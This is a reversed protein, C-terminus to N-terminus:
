VRHKISEVINGKIDYITVNGANASLIVAFPKETDINITQVSNGDDIEIKNVKQENMSVFARENYGEIQIEAVYKEAEIISGGLRFFYGFSFGPRNVYISFTHDNFDDSYFIMASMIDTTDKAVSWNDKIKQSSRADKEIDSKNTGITDNIYLLSVVAIIGIIFISLYKIGKKM